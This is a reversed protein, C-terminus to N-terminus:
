RRQAAANSTAWLGSFSPSPSDKQEASRQGTISPISPLKADSISPLRSFWNDDKQGQDNSSGGFWQDEPKKDGEGPKRACPNTACPNTCTPCPACAGFLSSTKSQCASFMGSSATAVAAAPKAEGDAAQPKFALEPQKYVTLGVEKDWKM